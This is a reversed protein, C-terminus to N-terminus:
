PVPPAEFPDGRDPVQGSGRSSEFPPYDAEGTWARVEDPWGSSQFRAVYTELASRIVASRSSRQEHALRDVVRILEDPRSPASWM